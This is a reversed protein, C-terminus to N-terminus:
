SLGRREIEIEVYDVGAARNTAKSGAAAVRHLFTLRSAEGVEAWEPLLPELLELSDAVM